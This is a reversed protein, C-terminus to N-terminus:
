SVTILKPHRDLDDEVAQSQVSVESESSRYWDTDKISQGIYDEHINFKRVKGSAGRAHPEDQLFPMRYSWDYPTTPGGLEFTPPQFLDRATNYLDCFADVTRRGLLKRTTEVNGERRLYSTVSDLSNDSARDNPGFIRILHGYGIYILIALLTTSSKSIKKGQNELEMRKPGTCNKCTSCTCRLIEEVPKGEHKPNFIERIARQPFFKIFEREHFAHVSAEHVDIPPQAVQLIQHLYPWTKCKSDPGCVARYTDM